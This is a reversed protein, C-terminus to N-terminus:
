KKKYSLVLPLAFFTAGCVVAAESNKDLSIDMDMQRMGMQIFTYLGVMCCFTVFAYFALTLIFAMSFGMFRCVEFVVNKARVYLSDQVGYHKPIFKPEKMLKLNTQNIYGALVNRTVTSVRSDLKRAYESSALRQVGSCFIMVVDYEEESLVSQGIYDKVLRVQRLLVTILAQYALASVQEQTPELVNRTELQPTNRAMKEYHEFLQINKSAYVAVDVLKMDNYVHDGYM